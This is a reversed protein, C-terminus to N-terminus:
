KSVKGTSKDVYWWGFSERMGDEDYNDATMHYKNGIEEYVEITNPAYGIQSIFYNKLISVAKDKSIGAKNSTSEQKKAEEKKRQEEQKRKEEAEQAIKEIAAECDLKLSTLAEKQSSYSENDKILELAEDIDEIARSYSKSSFYDESSKILKNIKDALEKDKEVQKKLYQAEKVLIDSGNEYKIVEDLTDLAQDLENKEYSELAKIYKESQNYLATAAEDDQKEELAKEFEEIAVEYKGNKLAENGLEMAENYAKDSKCGILLIMSILCISLIIKKQM